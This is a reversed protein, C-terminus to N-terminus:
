KNEYLYDEKEYNKEEGIYDLYFDLKDKLTKEKDDQIAEVRLEFENDDFLNRIIDDIGEIQKNNKSIYEEFAYKSNLIFRVKELDNQYKKNKKNNKNEKYSLIFKESVSDIIIKRAFFRDKEINYKEIEKISREEGVNIFIIYVDWLFSKLNIVEKNDEVTLENKINDYINEIELENIYTHIDRENKYGYFFVLKGDETIYLLKDNINNLEIDLEEQIFKILKEGM